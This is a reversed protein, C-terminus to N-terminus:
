KALVIVSENLGVYEQNNVAKALEVGAKATEIAGAKDGNKLLIKAKWYKYWPAKQDTKEAENIWLLAQKIDKNNNYYYQAAAFYPKKSSQMAKDINAMVKADFDIEMPISIMTNEWKLELHMKSPTVNTFQMTFTEISPKIKSPKIDFRCVDEEKKYDYAGWLESQKNIIVTWMEKNPITFLAYKGPEINFGNINVNDTFTLATVANAGTRWVADYKELGGFIKRNNMNPRSYDLTVKGLGFDQIITQSSSVQPMLSQGFSLNTILLCCIIASTIKFLIKM